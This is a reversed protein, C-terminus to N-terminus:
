IILNCSQLESLHYQMYFFPVDQSPGQGGIGDLIVQHIEYYADYSNIETVIPHHELRKIVRLSTLLHLQHCTSLTRKKITYWIDLTQRTSYYMCCLCMTYPSNLM